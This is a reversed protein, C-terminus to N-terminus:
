ETEGDATFEAGISAAVTRFENSDATGFLVYSTGDASVNGDGFTAVMAFALNGPDSSDRYDYIDWVVGDVTDTGTPLHQDLQQAIWTPNSEIGQTFGVFENSPTV